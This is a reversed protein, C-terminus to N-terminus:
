LPNNPKKGLGKAAEVAKDSLGKICDVFKPGFGEGKGAAGDVPAQGEQAKRVQDDYQAKGSEAAKIAKLDRITPRWEDGPRVPSTNGGANPYGPRPGTPGVFGPVPSPVGPMGPFHPNPIPCSPRTRKVDIPAMFM